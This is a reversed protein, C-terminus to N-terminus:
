PQKRQKYPEAAKPAPKNNPLQQQRQEQMVKPRYMNITNNTVTSPAPKPHEAIQGFLSYYITLKTVSLVIIFTGLYPIYFKYDEKTM